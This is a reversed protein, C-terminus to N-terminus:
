YVLISQLQLEVCSVRCGSKKILIKTIELCPCLLPSLENPILTPSRALLGPNWGRCHMIRRKEVSNMGVRPDVWGGIWHTDSAGEMPLLAAPAHLQGSVEM